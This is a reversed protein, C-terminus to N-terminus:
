RTHSVNALSLSSEVALHDRFSWVDIYKPSKPQEPCGIKRIATDFFCMLSRQAAIYESCRSGEIHIGRGDPIKVRTEQPRYNEAVIRVFLAM